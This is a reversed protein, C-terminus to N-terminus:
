KAVGDWMEDPPEFELRPGRADGGAVDMEGHGNPCSKLVVVKQLRINGITKEKVELVGACMPCYKAMDFLLDTALDWNM